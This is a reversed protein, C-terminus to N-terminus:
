EVGTGGLIGKMYFEYIKTEEYQVEPFDALSYLESELSEVDKTIFYIQEKMYNKLDLHLVNHTTFVFQGCHQKGNIYAVVQDSLVPNLVRDMEDAFVVKDEYVIKFVQVAWAFFERVGSSDKGLERSFTGGDKKRRIVISKSFPREEDLEIKIISRDVMQFIELFRPDNLIAFDEEENRMSKYLDYNVSNTEPCLSNKVWNSFRFAHEDGLIALKTTFLGLQGLNTGTKSILKEMEKEYGLIKLGYSAFAETECRNGELCQYGDEDCGLRFKNRFVKLIYQYEDEFKEKYSLEEKVIGAFDIELRYLYFCENGLWVELEFKQRTDGKKGCKGMLNNIHVMDKYSKVGDNERFFLKLYGLSRVFNSKGGANEGVIVAAKLIDCEPGVHVYNDPFRAKVEANPALMSFEVPEQFSMFNQFRYNLIM